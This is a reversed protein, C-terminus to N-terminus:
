PSTKNKHTRITSAYCLCAIVKFLNKDPISDFLIQFPSKHNLLPTTVINTLFIAHTVVYSWFDYTIKISVFPSM